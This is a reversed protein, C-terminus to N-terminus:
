CNKRVIVPQENHSYVLKAEIIAISNEFNQDTSKLQISATLDGRGPGRFIMESGTHAATISNPKMPIDWISSYTRSGSFDRVYPPAIQIKPFITQKIVDPIEFSVECRHFVFDIEEGTAPEVYLQLAVLKWAWGDGNINKGYTLEGGLVEIEPKHTIPVLLRLLDTRGATRTSTGERWPVEFKIKDKTKNFNPNKVVFPARDTEFVLSVVTVGGVPVNIDTM